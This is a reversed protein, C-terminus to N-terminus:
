RPFLRDYECSCRASCTRDSRRCCTGAMYRLGVAGTDNFLLLPFSSPTNHATRNRVSYRGSAQSRADIGLVPSVKGAATGYVIGPGALLRQTAGSSGLPNVSRTRRCRLAQDVDLRQGTAKAQRM